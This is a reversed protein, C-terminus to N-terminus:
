RRVGLSPGALNHGARLTLTAAAGLILAGLLVGCLLTWQPTTPMACAALAALNGVSVDNCPITPVYYRMYTYDALWEGGGAGLGVAIAVIAIKVIRPM